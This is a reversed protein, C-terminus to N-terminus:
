FFLRVIRYCSVAIKTVVLIDWRTSMRRPAGGVCSKRADEFRERERERERERQRDTQRDTEIWRSSSREELLRRGQGGQEEQEKEGQSRL